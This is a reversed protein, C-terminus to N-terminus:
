WQPQQILLTEAVKNNMPKSFFYGQAYKCKMQRLQALQQKTEVGAAIVDIGLKHALIITSQIIHIKSNENDDSISMNTIYSHDIKLTDLPFHRLYSLSSYGTGFNDLV